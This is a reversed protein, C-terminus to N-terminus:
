VIFHKIEMALSIFFIRVGRVRRENSYIREIKILIFYTIGDNLNRQFSLIKYV